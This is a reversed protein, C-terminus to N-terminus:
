DEAIRIDTIGGKSFDKIDAFVDEIPTIYAWSNAAQLAIHGRFLLGVARGKSDFVISGSDGNQALWETSPSGICQLEDSHYKDTGMIAELHADDGLTVKSRIQSFNGATLGTSAGKKFLLQGNTISSAGGVPPQQIDTGTTEFPPMNMGKKVWEETEPITNSGIRRDLPKILAWDLRGNSPTRRTYGSAAYITGLRQNGDDFFKTIKAVYDEAATRKASPKSQGIQKRWYEVAFCHKARTPHEIEMLRSAFSVAPFIGNLDAKWLDSGKVPTALGSKNKSNVALRFGDLASRIVHYNTLAYRTWEKAKQTKIEVWCGLTGVGPMVKEGDNRTIYCAPGIDEGFSVATEYTRNISFNLGMKRKQEEATIPKLVLDFTPYTQSSSHEMHLHLNYPYSDLYHQIQSIVPPWEAEESEYFVSVYVTLPNSDLDVSFGLKLLSITSVKGQTAANTELISSVNDKICTWDRVLWPTLEREPIHSVYMEWTLEEAIIEVAIDLFQLGQSVAVEDVLCKAQKVAQEWAASSTENWKAVALFTPQGQTDDGEVARFTLEASEVLKLGNALLIKDVKGEFANGFYRRILKCDDTWRNVIPRPWAPPAAVRFKVSSVLFEGAESSDSSTHATRRYRALKRLEALDGSRGSEKAPESLDDGGSGKKPAFVTDSPRLTAM